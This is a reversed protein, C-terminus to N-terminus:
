RLGGIRSPPWFRGVVKGVIAGRPVFGGGPDGLHDRSDDSSARHDGLVFYAGAPVRVDFPVQSPATGPALYPERLPRGDVTVRGAADCCAVREGPLGVVRKVYDHEGVPAGLAGAVEFLARGLVSQPRPPDFVGAGDFVVVDERRVPGFRYASPAVLLRDGVQLTPTMSASPVVVTQLLLLRVVVLVVVAAALM